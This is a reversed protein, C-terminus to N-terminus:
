RAGQQTFLERERSVRDSLLNITTEKKEKEKKQWQRVAEAKGRSAVCVCLGQLCRCVYVFLLPILLGVVVVVFLKKGVRRRSRLDRHM